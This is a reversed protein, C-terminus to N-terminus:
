VVLSGFLEAYSSTAAPDIGGALERGLHKAVEFAGGLVLVHGFVEGFEERRRVDGDLMSSDGADLDVSAARLVAGIGDRTRVTSRCRDGPM